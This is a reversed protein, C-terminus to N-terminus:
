KTQFRTPARVRLGPRKVRVELVSLQGGDSEASFGVSYRHRRSNLVRRIERTPPENVEFPTGQVRNVLCLGGTADSVSSVPACFDLDNNWGRSGRSRRMASRQVIFHVSVGESTARDIVDNLGVHNGTSLGDTWLLVARSGAERSLREIAAALADWLPSPGFRDSDRVNLVNSVDRLLMARDGSLPGSTAPESSIRGLSARDGPQLDAVFAELTRGFGDDDKLTLRSMSASVDVLMVLTLPRSRNSFSVLERPRSDALIEFEEPRLDTIPNGKGDEVGVDVIIMPVQWRAATLCGIVVAVLLRTM